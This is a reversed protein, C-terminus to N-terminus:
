SQAVLGFEGHLLGTDTWSCNLDSRLQDVETDYTLDGPTSVKSVTRGDVYISEKGIKKSM